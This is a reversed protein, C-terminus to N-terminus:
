SLDHVLISRSSQSMPISQNNCKRLNHACFLERGKIKNEGEPFSFFSWILHLDINRAALYPETSSELYNKVESAANDAQPSSVWHSLMSSTLPKAEVLKIDIKPSVQWGFVYLGEYDKCPLLILRKELTGQNADPFLRKVERASLLLGYV